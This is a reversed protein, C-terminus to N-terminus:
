WWQHTNKIGTIFANAEVNDPTGEQGDRTKAERLKKHAEAMLSEARARSGTIVEAMEAALRTSLAEVFLPSFKGTNTEKSVYILNATAADTLLLTGEVKWREDTNYLKIARLYDGPLQFANSYEFAPTSSDASLTKRAMAFNWPHSSLLLDRVQPYMLECTEGERGDEGIASITNENGLKILAANCIEVESVM